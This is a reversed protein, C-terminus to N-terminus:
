YGEFVKRIEGEPLAYNYIRFDDIRGKFLPDPYQSKGIYCRNQTFLPDLKVPGSTAAAGDIYLTGVDGKLTVAVHTWKGPKMAPAQLRDTDETSRTTTIEFSMVDKPVKPTLFMNKTVDGGIDFVRQHDKGGDWDVWAAITIDQYFGVNTPLVLYDKTGDLQIAKGGAHGPTYTPNGEATANSNGASDNTNGEFDYKVVLKQRVELEASTKSKRGGTEDSSVIYYYATGPTVNKDIFTTDKSGAKGITTYPGGKKTGRQVQYGEAYASGWWSLTVQGDGWSARLGSPPVDDAIPDLTFTLTGFGFWDYRSPHGGHPSGDPRGKDAAEKAYPAAIGKRNAYHNYVLEFMPPMGGRGATAIVGETAKSDFTRHPVFPVDDYGLNYKAIFELGRLMRNNDYGYLDIGQNWAIQCFKALSDWGGLNHPQDRGMEETQGLGSPFVYNVAREICGNGVGDYFYELAENFTAEDDLLVGIALMSTMNCTDWNLRYHTGGTNNHRTLFDRNSGLFLKMMEKFAEFDERKWGPYDRMMEAAMAFEGGVLGAGLAFNSDGGVGMKMTRGWANLLEVAKDAQAKDGTIQYRLACQYLTAADIQAQTYNSGAGGRIVQEVPRIPSKLNHPSKELLEWSAQWPQEHAKVKAAMREFDAKTHLAGPHVFPGPKRKPREAVQGNAAPGGGLVVVICAWLVLRPGTSIRSLIGFATMCPSIFLNFPSRRISWWLGM